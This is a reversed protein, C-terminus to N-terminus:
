QRIPNVVKKPQDVTLNFARHWGGSPFVAVIHDRDVYVTLVGQADVGIYQAKPFNVATIASGFLVTVGASQEEPM